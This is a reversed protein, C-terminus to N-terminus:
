TLRGFPKELLEKATQMYWERNRQTPMVTGLLQNAEWTHSYEGDGDVVMVTVFCRKVSSKRIEKLEEEAEKMKQAYADNRIKNKAHKRQAREFENM